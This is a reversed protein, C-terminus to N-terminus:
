KQGASTISGNSVGMSPADGAAGSSSIFVGGGGQGCAESAAKFADDDMPPADDSSGDPGPGSGISVSFKGDGDFTPDPMDIGHERMCKSFALMQEKMKEQEEPSPPTFSGTVDKMFHECAANAADLAEKDFPASDSGGGIQIAVEGGDGVAPDPMDIGHERMCKAFNLAADEPRTEITTTTAGDTTPATSDVAALSAVERDPQTSGCGALPILAVMGAMKETMATMATKM